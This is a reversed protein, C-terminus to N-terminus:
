AISRSELYIKVLGVSNKVKLKQILNRRHTEVTRPSIFLIEAIEKNTHENAIYRLVERERTTLNSLVTLGSKTHRTKAQSDGVNAPQFFTNGQMLAKLGQNFHGPTIDFYCIGKIGSNRLESVNLDSDFSKFILTHFESTLDIGSNFLDEDGILMPKKSFDCNKGKAIADKTIGQPAYGWSLLYTTLGKKFLLSKLNIFIDNTNMAQWLLQVRGPPRLCNKLLSFTKPFVLADFNVTNIRFTLLSTDAM